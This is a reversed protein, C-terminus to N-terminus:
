LLAMRTESRRLPCGEGFLLKALAPIPNLVFFDEDACSDTPDEVSFQILIMVPFSFLIIQVVSSGALPGPDPTRHCSSAIRSELSAIPHEV